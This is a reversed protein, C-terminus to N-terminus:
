ICLALGLADSYHTRPHFFCCVLPSGWTFPTIPKYLNSVIEHMEKSYTFVKKLAQNLELIDADLIDPSSIMVGSAPTLVVSNLKWTCNFSDTFQSCRPYSM